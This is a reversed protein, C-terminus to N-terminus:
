FLILTDYQSNHMDIYPEKTLFEYLNKLKSM